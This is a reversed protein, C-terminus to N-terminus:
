RVLEFAVRLSQKSAEVARLHLSVDPSGLTLSDDYSAALGLGVEHAAEISQLDRRPAPQPHRRLRATEELPEPIVHEGGFM